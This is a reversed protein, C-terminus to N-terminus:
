GARLKLSTASRARVASNGGFRVTVTLRGRGLHRANTFRLALSWRCTSALKATRHLVTKAGAKVVTAMSGHCSQARAAGLPPTLTGSLAYTFPARRDRATKVKASLGRAPRPVTAAPPPTTGPTTGTPPPTTGPTTGTPTTDTPPPATVATPTGTLPDLPLAAAPTARAFDFVSNITPKPSPIDDFSTGGLQGTGFDDEIFRLISAQDIATHKVYNTKSFPSVVLMPLRPGFGCRGNFGGAIAPSPAPGHCQGPGDLADEASASSNVIPSPQHDYWGDSDDYAIVIATDRWTSSAQIRNITNVLFHQEDLPDSYGAHGDQYSPPKLFSVAPPTGADLAAFYDATDYQHNVGPEDHGILAVSAPPTHHPNRTRDFYQFPEHHASYDTSPGGSVNTHSAGCTAVGGGSVATPRFGGQFWGWTVGVGSLLTGINPSAGFSAPGGGCDDGAPNPDGTITTGDPAHTQGSILNLAGPTSPGFTTGFFNDAMAYHQAYNWLATVTNGDYYGMGTSAAGGCSVFQVFKDMLGGDFAKQEDTYNHDNDCTVAQTRDLRFPNVGNPNATLLPGSLVNASPTSSAPTFAPQGAPNTANPYTGFYHDFSVNEDFIVVVHGIPTTPAPSASSSTPLAALTALAAAAGLMSLTRPLM